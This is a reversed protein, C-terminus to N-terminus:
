ICRLWHRLGLVMLLHLTSTTPFILSISVLGLFSAYDDPGLRISKVKRVYFRLAVCIFGVVPFLIGVAYTSHANVLTMTAKRQSGGHHCSGFGVICANSTSYFLRRSLLLCSKVAVAILLYLHPGGCHSPRDRITALRSKRPRSEFQFARSSAFLM